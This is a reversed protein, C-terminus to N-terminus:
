FFEISTREGAKNEVYVKDARLKATIVFIFLSLARRVTEALSAAKCLHKAKDYLTKRESIPVELNIRVTTEKAENNM